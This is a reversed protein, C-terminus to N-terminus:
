EAGGPLSPPPPPSNVIYGKGRRHGGGRQHRDAGAEQAETEAEQGRVRYVGAALGRVPPCLGACPGDCM